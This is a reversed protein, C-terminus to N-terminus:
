AAPRPRQMLRRSTELLDQVMPSDATNDRVWLYLDRRTVVPKPMRVEVPMQEPPLLHVPLCPLVALHRGHLLLQVLISADGITVLQTRINTIGGENLMQLIEREYPSAMGLSLWNAGKFDAIRPRPIAAMPHTPGCFTGLVDEALLIRQIGPLMQSHPAPGIAADLDGVILQDLALPPRLVAVTFARGPDAALMQDIVAPILTMGIFPGVGLRLHDRLGIQYRSVQERAMLLNREIARGERALAEGMPTSRVGFRSRTFLPTGAQMELTAMNRTLTPQAVLLHKSANSLSGKELIVALQLLHKPDMRKQDISNAIFCKVFVM